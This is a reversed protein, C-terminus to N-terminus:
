TYILYIIIQMNIVSISSIIVISFQFIPVTLVSFCFVLLMRRLVFLLYFLYSSTGNYKFESFFSGYYQM